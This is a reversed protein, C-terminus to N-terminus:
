KKIIIKINKTTNDLAKRLDILLQPSCKKSYNKSFQRKFEDSQSLGFSSYKIAIYSSDDNYRKSIIDSVDGIASSIQFFKLAEEPAIKKFEDSQICLVSAADIRALIEMQEIILEPPKKAYCNNVLLFFFLPLIKCVFIFKQPIKKQYTVKSLNAM